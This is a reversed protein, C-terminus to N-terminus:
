RVTVKCTDSIGGKRDVVTIRATYTGPDTYAHRGGNNDRPGAAYTMGDGYDYVVGVVGRTTGSWVFFASTDPEAVCGATIQRRPHQETWYSMGASVVAVTTLYGLMIAVPVAGRKARIRRMVLTGVAIVCFLVLQALGYLHFWLSAGIGIALLVQAVRYPLTRETAQRATWGLVKDDLQRTDARPCEPADGPLLHPGSSSGHLM